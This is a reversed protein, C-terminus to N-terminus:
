AFLHDQSFPTKEPVQTIVPVITRDSHLLAEATDLAKWGARFTGPSPFYFLRVFSQVNLGKKKKIVNKSIKQSTWTWLM